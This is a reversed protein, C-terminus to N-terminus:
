ASECYVKRPSDISMNVFYSNEKPDPVLQRKM